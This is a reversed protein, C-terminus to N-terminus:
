PSRSLLTAPISDALDNVWWGSYLGARVKDADTTGVFLPNTFRGGLQRRFGLRREEAIEARIDECNLLLDSACQILFSKPHFVCFRTTDLETFETYPQTIVLEQAERRRTLGM